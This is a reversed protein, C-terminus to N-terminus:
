KKKGRLALMSVNALIIALVLLVHSVSISDMTVTADGKFGTLAELEAAGRSGAVLGFEDGSLYYVMDGSKNMAIGMEAILPPKGTGLYNVDGNKWQRIYYMQADGTDSSMVFKIKSADNIDKMLPLDDTSFGRVDKPYVARINDRLLAVNTEQSPCYGFYAYDIGEQWTSFVDPLKEKIKAWTLDVDNYGISWVILKGGQDHVQHVSAVMAPLCDGWASVGSNISLVVVDGPQITKLGDYYAQTSPTISVPLGIPRLFPVTLGIFLIWYFVRRDVTQLKEWIGKESM